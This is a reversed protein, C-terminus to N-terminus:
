QQIEDDRGDRSRQERLQQEARSRPHDRIHRPEEERMADVLMLRTASAAASTNAQAMVPQEPPLTERQSTSRREECPSEASADPLTASASPSYSRASRSSGFFACARAPSARASVNRARASNVSLLSSSAAASM